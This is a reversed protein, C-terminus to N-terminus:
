YTHSERLSSLMETHSLRSSLVTRLGSSNGTLVACNVWNERWTHRWVTFDSQKVSLTYYLKTANKASYEGRYFFAPMRRWWAWQIDTGIREWKRKVLMCSAKVFSTLFVLSNLSTLVGRSDVDQVWSYSFSTRAFKFPTLLLVAVEHLARFHQV